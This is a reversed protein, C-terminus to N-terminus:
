RSKLEFELSLPNTADPQLSFKVPEKSDPSLSETTIVRDTDENTEEWISAAFRLRGTTAAVDGSFNGKRIRLTKVPLNPNDPLFTISGWSVPHGDLMVEGKVPVNEIKAAFFGGDRLWDNLHGAWSSLVPDGHFLGVGHVGPQYIHMEAPVGHKRLALYFLVANEAPVAKDEGTQFIFVPPTEASVNLESSVHKAKEPDDAAEPGLLNRRSGGHGFETSMSIVPYCLVAFDPRASLSDFDDVPDYAKESFKTAAMSALHGGASFGIVGVRSEDVGYEEAHGRVWRIGRQVDALQTPFHYGKSGLRYHLVFASVGRDNFWQAIQHGEHDAALGGYGGGPCVVVAAGNKKKTPAEYVYIKPRATGGEEEPNVEAPRAYPTKGEPWAPFVPPKSFAAAPTVVLAILVCNLKM